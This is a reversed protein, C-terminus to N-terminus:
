KLVEPIDWSIEFRSFIDQSIGVKGKFILCILWSISSYGSKDQILRSWSPYRLSDQSIWDSIGPYGSQILLSIAPYGSKDLWSIGPYGLKDLCIRLSIVQSLWPFDYYQWHGTNARSTHPYKIPSSMSVWSLKAQEPLVPKQMMM